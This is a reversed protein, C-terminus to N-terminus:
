VKAAYEKLGIELKEKAESFKDVPLDALSDVGAVAFALRNLWAIKKVKDMGEIHDLMTFLNMFQDDSIVQTVSESIDTLGEHEDMIQVSNSFAPNTCNNAQPLTKYLRRIAAKKWGEMWLKDPHWMISDQQKSMGRIRAIMNADIFECYYDGDSDKALAYVGIASNHTRHKASETRNVMSKHDAVYDPKDLPGKYRFYDRDYVEQGRLVKAIGASVAIHSLGRYSPSAYSIMPVNKEYESKSEGSKRTRARRPILYCHQQMPNMSLGMSAAQLASSQLSDPTCTMLTPNNQLVAMFHQKETKWRLEDIVAANHYRKAIMNSLDKIVLENSM